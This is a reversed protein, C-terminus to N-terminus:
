CEALVPVLLACQAVQMAHRLASFCTLLPRFGRRLQRVGQYQGNQHRSDLGLWDLVSVHIPRAALVPDRDRILM